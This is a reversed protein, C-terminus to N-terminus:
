DGSRLNSLGNYLASLAAAGAGVVAAKWTAVDVYNTGAAVVISLASQIFTKVSRELVDPVDIGQFM